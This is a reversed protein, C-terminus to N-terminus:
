RHQHRWRDAAAGLALVLVVVAAAATLGRASAAVAPPIPGLWGWTQPALAMWVGLVTAPWAAMPVQAPWWATADVRVAVAGSCVAAFAGIGVAEATPHAAVAAALGGLPPLTLLVIPPIPKPPWAAVLVAASALLLVVVADDLGVTAAIALAALAGAPRDLAAAVVAIVGAIAVAVRPEVTAGRAAAAGVLLVPVLLVLLADRRPSGLAAALFMLAAAGLALAALRSGGPDVAFAVAAGNAKGVLVGAALLVAGATALAARLRHERWSVAALMAIVLALERGRGGSFCAAVALPVGALAVFSGLTLARASAAALAAGGAAVALTLPRPGVGLLAAAVYGATVLAGYATWAREGVLPDRPPAAPPSTAVAM